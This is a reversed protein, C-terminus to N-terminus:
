QEGVIASRCDSEVLPVQLFMEVVAGVAVQEGLITAQGRFGADGPEPVLLVRVLLDVDPAVISEGVLEDGLVRCEELRSVGIPRATLERQPRSISQRVNLCPRDGCGRSGGSSTAHPQLEPRIGSIAAM